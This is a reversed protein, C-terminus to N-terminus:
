EQGQAILERLWTQSEENLFPTVQLVLQEFFPTTDTYTTLFHFLFRRLSQYQHLKEQYIMEPFSALENTAQQLQERREPVVSRRNLTSYWFPLAGVHLCWVLQKGGTPRQLPLKRACQWFAM